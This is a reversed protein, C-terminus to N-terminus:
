FNFSLTNEPEKAKTKMKLKEKEEEGTVLFTLEEKSRDQYDAKTCVNKFPCRPCMARNETYSFLRPDPQPDTALPTLTPIKASMAECSTLINQEVEKVRELDLTVEQQYGIKTYKNTFLYFPSLIIREYPMQLTRNAFIAYSYLQEETKESEAGTKWDFLVLAEQTQSQQWKMAFDIVVLIKYRGALMFHSLEEISLWSARTDFAMKAIPSNQWNALCQAIKRESEQKVEATFPDFDAGGKKEQKGFYYEFLNAHKKPAKRWAENKTDELGKHFKADAFSILEEFTPRERQLSFQRAKLFHEITEHVVSGIFMPLHQIQKLAYLHSALPDISERSDFPTKPWGEWSGYYTYWYKKQCETFTSHRSFSWSFENALRSGKKAM